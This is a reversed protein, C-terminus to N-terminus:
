SVAQFIKDEVSDINEGIKNLIPFIYDILVDLIKYLTYAPTRNLLGHRKGSNNKAQEFLKNLPRLKGDHITIIYDTGLFIDVEEAVCVQETKNFVPFHLVLFIYDTDDFDDLKPRQLYSTVDELHLPNFEYNNHLWGIEAEEAREINIWRVPLSDDECTEVRLKEEAIRHSSRKQAIEQKINPNKGNRNNLGQRLRTLPKFRTKRKETPTNM